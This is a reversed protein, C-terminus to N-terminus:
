NRKKTKRKAKVKGKSKKKTEIKVRRLLAYIERDKAIHHIAGVVAFFAFLSLIAERNKTVWTKGNSLVGIDKQAVIRRYGLNDTAEVSIFYDGVSFTNEPINFYFPVSSSQDITQEQVFALETKPNYVYITVKVDSNLINEGRDLVFTYPEEKYLASPGYIEVGEARVLTFIPALVFLATFIIKSFLFNKKM